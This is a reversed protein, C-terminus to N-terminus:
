ADHVTATPGSVAVLHTLGANRFRQKLVADLESDDGDVLGPLLGRPGDPLGQVAERLDSRVGEAHRQWWPAVAIRSPRGRVYLVASLLRDDRSPVFSAEVRMTEGTLAQEWGASPSILLVSGGVTVWRGNVQVARANAAVIVRSGGFGAGTMPRPEATLRVEVAAKQGTAALGAIVPDQAKALRVALSILVAGVCLGVLVVLRVVRSRHGVTAAIASALCALVGSIVVVSASSRLGAIVVIWVVVAACALRIDLPPRVVAPMRPGRRSGDSQASTSL